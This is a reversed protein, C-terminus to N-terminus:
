KHGWRHSRARMRIRMVRCAHSVSASLSDFPVGRIQANRVLWLRVLIQLAFVPPLPRNALRRTSVICRTRETVIDWRLHTVRSSKSPALGLESTLEGPFWQDRSRGSPSGNRKERYGTTQPEGGSPGFHSRTARQNLVRIIGESSVNLARQFLPELTRRHFAMAAGSAANREEFPGSPKAKSACHM